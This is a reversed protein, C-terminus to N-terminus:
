LVKKPPRRLFGMEWVRFPEKTKEYVFMDDLRPFNQIRLGDLRALATAVKLSLIVHRGARSAAKYITNIRDTDISSINITLGKYTEM